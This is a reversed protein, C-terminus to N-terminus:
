FYKFDQLFLISCQVCSTNGRREEDLACKHDQILFTLLLEIESIFLLLKNAWITGVTGLVSTVALTDGRTRLYVLPKWNSDVM